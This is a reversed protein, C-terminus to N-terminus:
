GGEALTRQLQLAHRYRARLREDTLIQGLIETIVAVIGLVPLVLLLGTPGAVAAGLFLMLVSLVPHFRLSRGVTLPLFVFDDLLRVCIFLVISGYITVPENPFDTAAVVTVLVCGAASGAYPVWALMAAILALLL